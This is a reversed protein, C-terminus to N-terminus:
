GYCPKILCHIDECDKIWSRLLAIDAKKKRVLRSLPAPDLFSADKHLLLIEEYLHNFGQVQIRGERILRLRLKQDNGPFCLTTFNERTQYM